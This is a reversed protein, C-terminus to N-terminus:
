RLLRVSTWLQGASLVRGASGWESKDNGKKERGGAEVTMLEYLPGAAHPGGEMLLEGTDRMVLLRDRFQHFGWGSRQWHVVKAWRM